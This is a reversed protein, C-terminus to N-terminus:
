RMVEPVPAAPQCSNLRYVHAQLPNMGRDSPIFLSASPTRHEGVMASSLSASWAVIRLVILASMGAGCTAPLLVAMATIPQVHSLTSDHVIM